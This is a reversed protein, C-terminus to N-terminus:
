IVGEFSGEVIAVDRHGYAPSGHGETVKRWGSGDRNDLYTTGGGYNVGDLEVVVVPIREGMIGETRAWHQPFEPADAVIATGPMAFTPLGNWYAQELGHKRRLERQAEIKAREQARGQRDFAKQARRQQSKRHKEGARRQARNPRPAAEGRPGFRRAISQNQDQM